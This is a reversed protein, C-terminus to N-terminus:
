GDIHLVHLHVAGNMDVSVSSTAVTLRARNDALQGGRGSKPGKSSLFVFVSDKRPGVRRLKGQLRSSLHEFKCSGSSRLNSGLGVVAVGGVATFGILLSHFNLTERAGEARGVALRSRARGVDRSTDGCM